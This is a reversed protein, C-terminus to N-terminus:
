FLEISARAKSYIKGSNTTLTPLSGDVTEGRARTNRAYQALDPMEYRLGLKNYEQLNRAQSSANSDRSLESPYGCAIQCPFDLSIGGWM